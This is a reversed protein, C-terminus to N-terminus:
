VCTNSPPDLVTGDGCEVANSIGPAAVTMFGVPAFAAAAMITMRRITSVMSPRGRIVWVKKLLIKSRDWASPYPHGWVTPRGLNGSSVGLDVSTAYTYPLTRIAQWLSCWSLM